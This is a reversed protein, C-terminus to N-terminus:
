IFLLLINILFDQSKLLEQFFISLLIKFANAINFIFDKFFLLFIRDFHVLNGILPIGPTNFPEDTTKLFFLNSLRHWFNDAALSLFSFRLKLNEILSSQVYNRLQQVFIRQFLHVLQPLSREKFKVFCSDLGSVGKDAVIYRIEWETRQNKLDKLLDYSLKLAYLCLSCEPSSFFSKVETRYWVFYPHSQYKGDNCIYTGM